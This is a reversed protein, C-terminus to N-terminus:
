ERSVNSLRGHLNYNFTGPTCTFLYNVNETSVVYDNAARKIYIIIMILGDVSYFKSPFNFLDRHAHLDSPNLGSSLM